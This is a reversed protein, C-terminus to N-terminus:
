TGDRFNSKPTPKGFIVVVNLLMGVGWTKYGMNRSLVFNRCFSVGRARYWSLGEVIGVRDRSFNAQSERPMDSSPADPM